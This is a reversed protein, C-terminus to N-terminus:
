LFRATDIATPAQLVMWLGLFLWLPYGWMAIAGRGSLASLAIVTVAPAFALLMVIRRDFLDATSASNDSAPLTGGKSRAALLKPAASRPWILMTAILLSPILFLVQSLAFVFPHRLHDVIGRSPAARREAYAFP